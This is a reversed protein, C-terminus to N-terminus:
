NMRKKIEKDGDINVGTVVFQLIVNPYPVGKTSALANDNVVRYFLNIDANQQNKNFTVFNNQFVKNSTYDTIFDFTGMSVTNSMQNTKTLYGSNNFPLGTLNLSVSLNATTLSSGSVGSAMDVLHFNFLEYKDWLEGLLLRLNINNWIMSTKNTDIQSADVSRLTLTVCQKDM